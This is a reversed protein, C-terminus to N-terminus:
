EHPRLVLVPVPAGRILKDAVSGLTLRKLGSRGHTALAVLDVRKQEAYRIIEAADTSEAVIVDTEVRELRASLDSAVRAVYERAALCRRAVAAERLEPLQHASAVPRTARVWPHVVRLVTLRAGCARAIRVAPEVIQEALPSGDLPVLVHAFSPSAAPAVRERELARIVLVPTNSERILADAVSGLWARDVPGFGHTSMVILDAQWSRAEAQIAQAPAGELVICSVDRPLAAKHAATLRDLYAQADARAHAHLMTEDQTDPDPPSHVFDLVHVLRLQAQAAHALALATALAQEALSSGDLPVLIRNVADGTPNSHSASM